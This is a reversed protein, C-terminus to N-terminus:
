RSLCLRLLRRWSRHRNRHVLCHGTAHAPLQGPLMSLQLQRAEELEQSKRENEAEIQQFDLFRRYGLSLASALEKVIAENAASVERQGYGIWGEAFPVCVLQLWKGGYKKTYEAPIKDGKEILGSILDEEDGAEAIYWVKGTRWRELQRHMEEGSLNQVSKSVVMDEIEIFKTLLSVPGYKRPNETALYYIHQNSREDDSHIGTAWNGVELKIM